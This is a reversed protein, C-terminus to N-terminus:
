TCSLATKLEPCAASLVAKAAHWNQRADAQGLGGGFFLGDLDADLDIIQGPPQRAWNHVQGIFLDIANDARM